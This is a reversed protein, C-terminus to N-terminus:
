EFFKDSESLFTLQVEGCNLEVDKLLNYREDDLFFLIFQKKYIKLDKQIPADLM